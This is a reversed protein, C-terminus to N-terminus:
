GWTRDNDRRYALVAAGLVLMAIFALTGIAVILLMTNRNFAGEGTQRERVAIESM